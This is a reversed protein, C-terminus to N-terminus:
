LLYVKPIYVDAELIYLLEFSTNYLINPALLRLFIYPDFGDKPCTPSVVIINDASLTALYNTLQEGSLQVMRDNILVRVSGKGIISVNEKEVNVGPTKKLLELADGGSASVSNEVNFVMRDAKQEILKKRTTVVVGELNVSEENLQIIGLDTQNPQPMIKYNEFGLFSIEIYFPLKSDEKIEFKGNENTIAASLTKNTKMEKTIVNAYSIPINKSDKVTGTYTQAMSLSLWFLGFITLLKKM